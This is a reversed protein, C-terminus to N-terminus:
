LSFPYLFNFLLLNANAPFNHAHVRHAYEMSLTGGFEFLYSYRVGLDISQHQIPGYGDFDETHKINNHGLGWLVHAFIRLQQENCWNKEWAAEARLWPSGVDATGIAAVAWWHSNWFATYPYEEYPFEKGIAVHLEQEFKGHHFSSIDHVSHRFAQTITIGTTLSIFDDGSIDDLWRYRGTLRLNDCAPRQRRTDAFTAEVEASWDFVTLAASGTLFGDHAHHNINGHPTSIHNYTQYIGTVQPQIELERELWPRLETANLTFSLLCLLVLSKKMISRARM